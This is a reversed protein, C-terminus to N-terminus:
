SSLKSHEQCTSTYTAVLLGNDDKVQKAEEQIKRPLVAFALTTNVYSQEEKAIEKDKQFSVLHPVFVAPQLCM